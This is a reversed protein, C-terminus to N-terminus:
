DQNRRMIELGLLGGITTVGLMEPTARGLLDAEHRRAPDFAAFRSRLNKPPVIYSIAGPLEVENVYPISDFKSFIDGRLKENSARLNGYDAGESFKMSIPSESMVSGDPAVMQNGRRVMLPYTVGKLEDNAYNPNGVKYGVTNNFRNLVQAEPGVHTGVADFPATAFKGSDLEPVDVGHRSFHAAPMDFGMAAARDMATNSAPLGLMKVANKRAVEMAEYRPGIGKMVGVGLFNAPDNPLERVTQLTNDGTKELANVPDNFLDRLNRAAVRRKNDTWTLLDALVAM